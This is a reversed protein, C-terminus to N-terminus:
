KILIQNFLAAQNKIQRIEEAVYENYMKGETYIIIYVQKDINSYVMIYKKKIDKLRITYDFPIVFADFMEIKFYDEFWMTQERKLLLNEKNYEISFDIETINFAKYFDKSFEEQTLLEKLTSVYGVTGRVNNNVGSSLIIDYPKHRFLKLIDEINDDMYVAIAVNSYVNDCAIMLEYNVNTPCTDVSMSMGCHRINSGAYQYFVNVVNQRCVCYPLNGQKEKESQKYRYLAVVVDKQVLDEKMKNEVVSIIMYGNPTLKTYDKALEERTKTFREKGDITTLSFTDANKVKVVKYVKKDNDFYRTGVLINKRKYM